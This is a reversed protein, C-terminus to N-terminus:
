DHMASLNVANGEAGPNAPMHSPPTMPVRQSPLARLQRFSILRRETEDWLVLRVCKFSEGISLKSTNQLTPHDEIVSPLRYFPIRSCLHHVHHIGINASMWQLVPPLDYHSSGRLAAEHLTWNQQTAWFTDEFQHQVYFLWVGISFFGGHILVRAM